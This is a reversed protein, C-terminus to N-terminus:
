RRDDQHHHHHHHHHHQQVRRRYHHHHHHHHHHLQIVFQVEEVMAPSEPGPAVAQAAALEKLMALANPIPKLLDAYSSAQLASEVMVPRAMAAQAPAAAVLVTVAGILGALNKDM